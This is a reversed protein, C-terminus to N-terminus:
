RSDADHGEFAMDLLLTWQDYSLDLPDGGMRTFGLDRLRVAIERRQGAQTAQLSVQGRHDEDSAVSSETESAPLPTPQSVPVVHVQTAQAFRLQRAQENAEAISMPRTEGPRDFSSVYTVKYRKSM